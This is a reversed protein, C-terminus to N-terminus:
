GQNRMLEKAWQIARGDLIQARGVHLVRWGALLLLANKELDGAFRERTRHAAGDVEVALLRDPWAFDLRFRRGPIPKFEAVWGGIGAEQLQDQFRTELHSREARRPAAETPAPVTIQLPAQAVLGALRKTYADLQEASWRIGSM